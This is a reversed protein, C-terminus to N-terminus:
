AVQERDADAHRARALRTRQYATLGGWVGYREGATLAHELCQAAVPCRACIRQAPGPDGGREPFFAEPDTEACLAAERWSVGPEADPDPATSLYATAGDHRWMPMRSM